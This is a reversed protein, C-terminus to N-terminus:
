APWGGQRPLTRAASFMGLAVLVSWIGPLMWILDPAHSYLVAGIAAGAIGAPLFQEIAQMLMADALGAHHRRTRAITEIGVLGACVIAIAIWGILLTETDTALTTPFASQAIATLLALLGTGAIVHPGFGRFLMGAAMQERIATIDGLAKDLDRM